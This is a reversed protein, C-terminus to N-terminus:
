IRQGNLQNTKGRNKQFQTLERTPMQEKQRFLGQGKMDPNEKPFQVEAAPWVPPADLMDGNGPWNYPGQM